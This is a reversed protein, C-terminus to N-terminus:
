TLRIRGFSLDLKKKLRKKEAEHKAANQNDEKKVIAIAKIISEFAEKYRRKNLLVKSRNLFGMKKRYNDDEEKM